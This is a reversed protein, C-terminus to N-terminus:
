RTGASRLYIEFIALLRPVDPDLTNWLAMKAPTHKTMYQKFPACWRWELARRFSVMVQSHKDIGLNQQVMEQYLSAECESDRKSMTELRGHLHQIGHGLLEHALTLVLEETKWKVIYRGVIVPFDKRGGPDRTESLLTPFFAALLVSGGSGAVEFPFGPNYVIVVDGNSKLTELVAASYASKELLLDLAARVAELGQRASIVRVDYDVAPDPPVGILSVGKHSIELIEAEAAIGPVIALAGLVAVLPSAIIAQRGSRVLAMLVSPAGEGALKRSVASRLNTAGGDSQDGLCCSSPGGDVPITGIGGGSNGVLADRALVVRAGEDAAHEGALSEQRLLDPLV